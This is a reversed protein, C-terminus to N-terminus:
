SEKGIERALQKIERVAAYEPGDANLGDILALLRTLATM